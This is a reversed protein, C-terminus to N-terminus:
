MATSTTGRLFPYTHSSLPFKFFHKGTSIPVSGLIAVGDQDWHLENSVGPFRQYQPVAPM